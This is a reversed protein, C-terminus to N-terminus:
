NGRILNRLWVGTERLDGETWGSHKSSSNKILASTENKNSLSWGAYSLNDNRILQKWEAAS